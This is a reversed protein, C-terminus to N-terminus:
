RAICKYRFILFRDHFAFFSFHIASYKADSKECKADKKESKANQALTLVRVFDCPNQPKNKAANIFCSIRM